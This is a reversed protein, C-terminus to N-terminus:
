KSQCTRVVAQNLKTWSNEVKPLCFLRIESKMICVILQNKKQDVKFTVLKNIKHGRSKTKRVGSIEPQPIVSRQTYYLLISTEFKSAFRNSISHGLEMEPGRTAIRGKM